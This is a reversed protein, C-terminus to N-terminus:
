NLKLRVVGKSISQLGRRKYLGDESIRTSNSSNKLELVSDNMAKYTKSNTNFSCISFIVVILLVLKLYNLKFDM